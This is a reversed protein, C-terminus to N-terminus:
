EQVWQKDKGTKLLFTKNYKFYSVLHSQNAWNNRFLLINGIILLSLQFKALVLVNSPVISCGYIKTWLLSKIMKVVASNYYSAIEVRFTVVPSKHWLTGKWKQWEKSVGAVTNHLRNSFKHYTSNLLSFRKQLMCCLYLFFL